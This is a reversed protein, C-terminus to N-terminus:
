SPQPTIGQLVGVTIVGPAPSRITGPQAKETTTANQGRRRRRREVPPTRFAQGCRHRNQRAQGGRAPPRTSPSGLHARGRSGTTAPGLEASGAARPRLRRFGHRVGGAHLGRGSYLTYEAAALVDSDSSPADNGSQKGLRVSSYPTTRQVVIMQSAETYLASRRLSRSSRARMRSHMLRGTADGNIVSGGDDFGLVNQQCWSRFAQTCGHMAQDGSSSYTDSLIIHTLAAYRADNM